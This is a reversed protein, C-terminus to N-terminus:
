LFSRCRVTEVDADADSDDTVPKETALDVVDDNSRVEQSAAKFETFHM